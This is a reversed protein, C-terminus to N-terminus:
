KELLEKVDSKFARWSSENEVYYKPCKKGTVDYHRIVGDVDVNYEGMLWATLRVLADYTKANFRGSEDEICCEISITDKNRENSAYSIEDCPICQIIEGELGVVFHSSASTKHSIALGAFYDRNQKASTMPNGTYHVVIGNVEELSDGPRSYPNVPLYDPQIQPQEVTTEWNKHHVNGSNASKTKRNKLVIILGLLVVLLVLSGIAIRILLQRQRQRKRRIIRERIRKKEETM